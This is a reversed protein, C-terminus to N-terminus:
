VAEENDVAGHSAGYGAIYRERRLTRAVPPLHDFARHVFVDHTLRKVRALKLGLRAHDTASMHFSHTGSMAGVYAAATRMCVDM